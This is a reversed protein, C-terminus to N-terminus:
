FRCLALVFPRHVRPEYSIVMQDAVARKAVVHSGRGWPGRKKKLKWGSATQAFSVGPFVLAALLTLAYSVKRTKM